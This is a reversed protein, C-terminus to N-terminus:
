PYVGTRVLTVKMGLNMVSVMKFPKREDPQPLSLVPAFRSM